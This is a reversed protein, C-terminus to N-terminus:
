MQYIKIGAIFYGVDGAELTDKRELSIKFIGIEEILHESNTHMLRIKDGMKIQGEFIRFHVVVGRYSDYHSDFILARLPDKISGRPSPVYKCIAELM